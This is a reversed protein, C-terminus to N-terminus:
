KFCDDPKEMAETIFDRMVDGIGFIVRKMESDYTFCKTLLFNEKTM